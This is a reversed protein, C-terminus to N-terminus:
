SFTVTFVKFASCNKWCQYYYFINLLWCIIIIESPDHSVSSQFLPQASFETKGGYCYTKLYYYIETKSIQVTNKLM